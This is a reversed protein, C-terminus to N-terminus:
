SKSPSFEAVPVRISVCARCGACIPQYILEGTRRFGADLFHHYVEGDMQGVVFLRFTALRGPLYPCAHPPMNMLRVAVPPPLAPYPCSPFQSFESPVAM